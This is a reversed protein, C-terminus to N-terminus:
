MNLYNGYSSQSDGSGIVSIDANSYPIDGESYSTQYGNSYSSSGTGASKSNNTANKVDSNNVAMASAANTDGFDTSVNSMLRLGKQLQKVGDVCMQDSKELLTQGLLSIKNDENVWPLLSALEGISTIIRGLGGIIGGAATEGVGFISVGVGKIFNTADQINTLGTLIRLPGHKFM